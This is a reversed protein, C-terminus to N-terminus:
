VTMLRLFFYLPLKHVKLKVINHIFFCFLFNNQIIVIEEVAVTKRQVIGIPMTAHVGLVGQRQFTTQVSVAM